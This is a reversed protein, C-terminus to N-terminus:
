GRGGEGIWVLYGIYQDTPPEGAPPPVANFMEDVNRVQQPNSPECPLVLPTLSDDMSIVFEITILANEWGPPAADAAITGTGDLRVTIGARGDTETDHSRIVESPREVPTVVPILGTGDGSYLILREVGLGRSASTNEVEHATGTQYLVSEGVGLEVTNLTGTLETYSRSALWSGWWTSVVVPGEFTARYVGNTVTDMVLGNISGMESPPFARGLGPGFSWHQLQMQDIADVGRRRFNQPSQLLMQGGVSSMYTKRAECSAVTREAAVPSGATTVFSDAAPSGTLPAAINTAQDGQGPLRTVSLYGGGIAAILLAATAALAAWRVGRVARPTSWPSPQLVVTSPAHMPARRIQADCARLRKELTQTFAVEPRPTGDRARITDILQDFTDDTMTDDERPM